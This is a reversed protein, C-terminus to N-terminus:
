LLSIPYYLDCQCYGEKCRSRDIREFRFAEKLDFHMTPMWIQYVYHWIDALTASSIEEPSHAGVYTFVGYKYAPIHRIKMDEPVISLSNIETSPQYYTFQSENALISTYGIYINKDIPNVIRPLHQQAFQTGYRNAIQFDQNDKVNVKYELGAITFAPLVTIAKFYILGEGAQTLFDLNFRDLIELSYPNRRWKSPSVGYAEKFARTYTRECGFGYKAAVFDVTNKNQILDTLSLALRRQRVYEMLGTTTIGKWLRLLHYKSLNVHESISDLTLAEFLHDEIFESTKEILTFLYHDM